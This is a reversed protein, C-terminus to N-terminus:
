HRSPLRVWRGCSRCPTARWSGWCPAAIYLVPYGAELVLMAILLLGSTVALSADFPLIRGGGYWAPEGLLAAGGVTGLFLNAALLDFFM